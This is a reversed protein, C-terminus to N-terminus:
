QFNKHGLVVGPLTEVEVDRLAARQLEAFGRVQAQAFRIDDLDRPKMAAMADEIEAAGLRFSLPTWDDFRTSFERVSVDGRTEINTLINEVVGKIQAADTAKKSPDRGSKIFDPL